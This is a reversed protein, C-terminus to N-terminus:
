PSELLLPLAGYRCEAPDARHRGPCPRTPESIPMEPQLDVIRVWVIALLTELPNVSGKNWGGDTTCHEERLRSPQHLPALQIHRYPSAGPHSACTHITAARSTDATLFVLQGPVVGSAPDCRENHPPLLRLPRLSQSAGQRLDPASIRRERRDNLIVSALAETVQGRERPSTPIPESLAPVCM